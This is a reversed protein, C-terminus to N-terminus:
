RPTLELQASLQAKSSSRRRPALGTPPVAAPSAPSGVSQTSLGAEVDKCLWTSTDVSTDSAASAEPNLKTTFLYSSSGAERPLISAADEEGSCRALQLHGFAGYHTRATKFLLKVARRSEDLHAASVHHRRLKM